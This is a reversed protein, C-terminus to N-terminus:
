MTLQSMNCGLDPQKFWRTRCKSNGGYHQRGAMTIILCQTRLDLLEDQIQLLHAMKFFFLCHVNDSLLAVVHAFFPKLCCFLLTPTNQQEAFLLICSTLSWQLEWKNIAYNCTILQRELSTNALLDWVHSAWAIYSILTHNAIKQPSQSAPHHTEETQAKGQM